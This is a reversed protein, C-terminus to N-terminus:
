PQEGVYCHGDAFLLNARLTIAHSHKAAIDARMAAVIDTTGQTNIANSGYDNRSIGASRKVILSKGSCM